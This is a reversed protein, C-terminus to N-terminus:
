VASGRLRALINENKRIKEKYYKHIMVLDELGLEDLINPNDLSKAALEAIRDMKVVEELGAVLEANYFKNMRAVELVRAM